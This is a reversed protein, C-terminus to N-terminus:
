GLNFRLYDLIKKLIVVSSSPMILHNRQFALKVLYVLSLIALLLFVVCIRQVDVFSLFLSTPSGTSRPFRSMPRSFPSNQTPLFFPQFLGLERTHKSIENRINQAENKFQVVANKLHPLHGDSVKLKAVLESERQQLENLDQLRKAKRAAFESDQDSTQYFFSVRQM